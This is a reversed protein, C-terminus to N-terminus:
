HESIAPKSCAIAKITSRSTTQTMHFLLGIIFGCCTTREEAPDRSVSFHRAKSILKYFVFNLHCHILFSCCYLELLCGPQSTFVRCPQYPPPTRIECRQIWRVPFVRRNQRTRIRTIQLRQYQRNLVSVSRTAGGKPKTTATVGANTPHHFPSNLDRRSNRFPVVHQNLM